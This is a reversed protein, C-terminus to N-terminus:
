RSAASAARSSARCSARPRRADDDARALPPAALRQRLSGRRLAAVAAAAGGFSNEDNETRGGSTSFFYTTVPRGQYTVVQRATEAVAQNTSPQEVASAATSRRAPTPTTTSASAARPRTTIAYTRAAVAQAKLAELPWSAPSEVRCSARCTTTSRSPTSRTSASRAPASSSRHRPLRREHPRQLARGKLVIGDPAATSRCRRPTPASGSAPRRSCPSRAAPAARSATADQGPGAHARRGARRRHVVRRREDVAAARAGDRSTSSRRRARHGHLLPRPHRPLGRRAQRLGHRRVPEHGVGHGFGAGRITLRSAGRRGARRGAPLRALVLLHLRPIRHMATFRRRYRDRVNARCTAPISTAPHAFALRRIEEDLAELGLADLVDEADRALLRQVEVLRQLARADREDGDAVLLAPRVHGVHVPPEGLARADAEAREPRARRVEDGATASANRSREGSTASVPWPSRSRMCLSDCWYM